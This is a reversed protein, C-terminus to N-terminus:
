VYVAIKLYYFAYANNFIQRVNRLAHVNKRVLTTFIDNVGRLLLKIKKIFLVDLM